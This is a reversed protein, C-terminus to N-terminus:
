LVNIWKLNFEGERSSLPKYEDVLANKIEFNGIKKSKLSKVYVFSDQDAIYIIMGRFPTGIKAIESETEVRQGIRTPIDQGSQVISGSLQVNAM